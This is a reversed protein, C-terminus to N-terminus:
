AARARTGRCRGCPTRRARSLPVGRKLGWAGKPCQPQQAAPTSSSVHAEHQAASRAAASCQVASCSRHRLAACEVRGGAAAFAAACMPGAPYPYAGNRACPRGQGVSDGAPEHRRPTEARARARPLRLEAHQLV